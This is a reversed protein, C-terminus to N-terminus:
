HGSQSEHAANRGDYSKSAPGYDDRLIGFFRLGSRFLWNLDL